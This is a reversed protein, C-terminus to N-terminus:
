QLCANHWTDQLVKTHFSDRTPAGCGACRCGDTGALCPRPLCPKVVVFFELHFPDFQNSPAMLRFPLLSVSVVSFLCLLTHTYTHPTPARSQSYVVRRFMYGPITRVERSRWRTKQSRGTSVRVRKCLNWARLPASCLFCLQLSHHAAIWGGDRGTTLRRLRSLLFFFFFFLSVRVCVYLFVAGTRRWFFVCGEERPGLQEGTAPSKVSTIRVVFEQVSFRFREAAAGPLLLFGCISFSAATAGDAAAVLASCSM